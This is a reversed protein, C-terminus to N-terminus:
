EPLGSHCKNIAPIGSVPEGMRERLITALVDHHQRQWAATDIHRQRNCASELRREIQQQHALDPHRALGFHGHARNDIAM